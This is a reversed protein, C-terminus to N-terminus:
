PLHDLISPLNTQLKKLDAPVLACQGKRKHHAGKRIAVIFM